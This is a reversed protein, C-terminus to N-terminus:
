EYKKGVIIAPLFLGLAALLTLPLKLTPAHEPWLTRTGWWLGPFLAMAGLLWGRMATLIHPWNSNNLRVGALNLRFVGDSYFSIQNQDYYTPLTEKVRFCLWAGFLLCLAEVLFVTDGLDEWGAGLAVLLGTEVTGALACLLYALRWKRRSRKRQEQQEQSLQIAGEVLRDVKPRELTEEKIREGQLLEAVSVELSEALPRLLAVDPLSLGREWKSVAKDSVFLKEALERQTMGQGRRLEALFAGFRKKDMEYM